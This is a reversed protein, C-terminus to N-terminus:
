KLKELTMKMKERDLNVNFRALFTQGLLGDKFGCYKDELIVGALVDKEEVGQINVSKLVVMRANMVDGSAVRLEKLDKKSDPSMDVGLREGIDKSLLIIDAGTDLTLTANVSGNLVTEVLVGTSEGDRVISVEGGSGGEGGEKRRAEEQQEWERYKRIKEFREDATAKEKSQLGDQKKAISKRYEVLANQDARKITKIGARNLVISGGGIDIKVIKDTEKLIIGKMTGGSKLYVIDPTGKAAPARVLTGDDSMVQNTTLLICFVMTMSLFLRRHTM